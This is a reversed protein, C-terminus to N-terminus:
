EVSKLSEAMNIKNLKFYMFLNVMLAFLLTIFFSYVYSSNQIINDFSVMDIDIKEIVFMHLWKGLLLGVLAGIGTLLLNERFVYNATELPYFGLVKITAIERIRETININTLNYLVIFALMAACGIILIVIYKMSDLMGGVRDRSDQNVTVGLVEDLNLLSAAAGHIDAGDLVNAYLNQYKPAEGMADRYTAENIIAYNHIYNKYTGSVTVVIENMDSDRLRLTDGIKVGLKEAIKHSLLAEGDGPLAVPNGQEDQLMVYDTLREEEQPVLLNISKIMEASVADVKSIHLYTHDRLVEDLAMEFAEQDEGDVEEHLLINYDYVEIQTYQMDVVDVISDQFGLGTLVLATCGSIGIVMMFFRKKYRFINRLSVKHLFPLQKWLVTIYELFIRRGARPAKPRLLESPMSKLEKICSFWTAGMTCLLAALLSVVGLVPDTIYQMPAFGYTLSYGTWIVAPFLYTGGIYGSVAGIVAASGAYFLYKGMIAGTTYGMAKLVGIQMRQEEIMRNMTTICVLAVVLFFFVPFVVAVAEVIQTDSDFCALGINSGRDLVFVDPEELDELEARADALEAEADAIEQEFEAVADYYEAFGDELEQRGDGLEEEGDILEQKADALEQRADALEREGDELEAIADNLERWGDDLEARADALEAVADEYAALGDAYETLGRWLEQESEDIKDQAELLEGKALCIQEGAYKLQNAADLCLLYQSYLYDKSGTLQAHQENLYEAPPINALQSQLYQLQVKLVEEGPYAPNEPNQLLYETMAIGQEVQQRGVQAEEIQDIGSDVMGMGYSLLSGKEDLEAKAEELEAEKEFIQAWGSAIETRADDIERQADTLQIRADILEIRADELEVAGDAYENEGDLLEARADEIEDWGDAIEREADVIEIEADAIEREGDLLEEEGDAIEQQADMLEEYADALEEEGEARADALEQKADELEETYEQVVSLYRREGAEEAAAEVRDTVSDIYADYEESYLPYRDGMRLYVETYIDSDFAERPVYIFCDVVGDLLATTGREYNLYNPSKILGVVTYTDKYFVDLTDEENQESWTLERGLMDSSFWKADVLCEGANEPMRGEVLVVHNMSQTISHVKAVAIEEGFSFIVDYSFSGEADSVGELGSLTRVDEEEFGYTSVLRYDYFEANELYQNGVNVMAPTCIKLGGFFGVGLATIALIAIYRGFSNKIERFTTKRLNRNM